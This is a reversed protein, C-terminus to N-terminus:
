AMKKVCFYKRVETTVDIDYEDKEEKVIPNGNEGWTDDMYNILWNNEVDTKSPLTTNDDECTSKAEDFSKPETSLTYCNSQYVLGECKNFNNVDSAASSVHQTGSTVRGTSLTLSASENASMCQNLKVILFASISIMSVLSIIISIRICLGLARKKKNKKSQKSGYITASFVSTQDEVDVKEPTMM